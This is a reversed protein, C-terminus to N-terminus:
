TALAPSPAMPRLYGETDPGREEGFRVFKASNLIVFATAVTHAVAVAIPSLDGYALTTKAIAEADSGNGKKAETIRELM